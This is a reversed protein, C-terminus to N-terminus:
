APVLGCIITVDASQSAGSYGNNVVISTLHMDGRQFSVSTDAELWLAAESTSNLYVYVDDGSNIITTSVAVGDFVVEDMDGAAPLSRYVKPQIMQAIGM